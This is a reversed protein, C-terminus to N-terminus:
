SKPPAVGEDQVHRLIRFIVAVIVFGALLGIALHPHTNVLQIINGVMVKFANIGTTFVAAGVGIVINLLLTGAWRKSTFTPTALVIGILLGVTFENAEM